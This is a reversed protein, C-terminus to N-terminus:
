RNWRALFMEQAMSEWEKDIEASWEAHRRDKLRELLRKRRDAEVVKRQQQTVRFQCTTRDKQLQKSTVGLSERFSQLQQLEQGDTQSSSVWRNANLGAQHLKNIRDDLRALEATLQMLKAQELEFERTRLRLMTELSFHFAKM